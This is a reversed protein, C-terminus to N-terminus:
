GAQGPAPKADGGADCESRARCERTVQRECATRQERAARHEFGSRQGARTFTRGAAPAGCAARACSSSAMREPTAAPKGAVAVWQARWFDLTLTDPVALAVTVLGVVAVLLLM